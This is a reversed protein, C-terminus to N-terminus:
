SICDERWCCTLYPCDPTGKGFCPTNGEAKQISLILEGKKQKGPNIGHDQAIKKIDAVKM